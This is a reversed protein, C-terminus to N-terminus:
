LLPQFEGRPERWEDGVESDLFNALKYGHPFAEQWFVTDGDEPKPLALIKWFLDDTLLLRTPHGVRVENFDEWLAQMEDYSLPSAESTVVSSFDYKWSFNPVCPGHRVAGHQDIFWGALM